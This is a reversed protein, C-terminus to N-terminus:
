KARGQLTNHPRTSSLHRKVSVMMGHGGLYSLGLALWPKLQFPNMRVSLKYLCRGTTLNGHSSEVNGLKYARESLRKGVLPILRPEQFAVHMAVFAHHKMLHDRKSTIASSHVRKRVLCESAAALRGKRACRFFFDTDEFVTIAEDFRGVQDFIARRMLVTSPVIPPDNLFYDLATDRSTALDRVIGYESETGPGDQFLEFSTYVLATDPASEIVAMQTEIKRADWTDDADLLAILPAATQAIAYNRNRALGNPRAETFRGNFLIRVRPDRDALRDLVALTPQDSGDDSIIIEEIVHSASQDLVSQLAGEVYQGENYCTIIVAIKMAAEIPPLPPSM